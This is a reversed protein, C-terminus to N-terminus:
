GSYFQIAAAKSKARTPSADHDPQAAPDHEADAESSERVPDRQMLRAIACCPSPRGAAACSPRSSGSCPRHVSEEM